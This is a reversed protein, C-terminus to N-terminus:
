QRLEARMYSVILELEELSADRKIANCRWCVIAVNGVVYGKPADIRDLSPNDFSAGGHGLYSYNLKVHCCRCNEPRQTKLSLLFAEDYPLGNKKARSIAGRALNLIRHRERYVRANEKLKPKVEPRERWEKQFEKVGERYGPRTKITKHYCRRYQANIRERYEPDSRRREARRSTM